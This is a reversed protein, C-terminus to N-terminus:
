GHAGGTDVRVIRESETPESPRDEGWSARLGARANSRNGTRPPRRACSSDTLQAQGPRGAEDIGGGSHEGALAGCGSHGRVLEQRRPRGRAQRIERNDRGVHAAADSIRTVMCRMATPRWESGSSSGAQCRARTAPRSATTLGSRSRRSCANSTRSPSGGRISSRQSSTAMSPQSPLCTHSATTPMKRRTSMRREDSNEAAPSTTPTRSSRAWSARSMTRILRTPRGCSSCASSPRNRPSPATTARSRSATSVIWDSQRGDVRVARGLAHALGDAGDIVYTPGSVGRSALLTGHVCGLALQSPALGKWESIPTTRVVLLPIGAAGSDRRGVGGKKTSGSRKPCARGWRTLSNRRLTSGYGHLARRRDRRRLRTPSRLVASSDRGAAPTSPLPLSQGWITRRIACNPGPSIATWSTSTGSWRRTIRQAYVVNAQGGGILTCRPGSGGFEQAQALYAEIPPAGLAGIACAVSDLVDAKLRERREATLDEYRTRSAFRAIGQAQSLGTIIPAPKETLEREDCRAKGFDAEEAGAAKGAMASAVLAANTQLFTRRNLKTM